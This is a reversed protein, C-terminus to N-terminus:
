ILISPPMGGSKQSTFPRGQASQVSLCSWRGRSPITTRCSGSSLQRTPTFNQSRRQDLSSGDRGGMPWRQGDPDMFTFHFGQALELWALHILRDIAQCITLLPHTSVLYILGSWITM